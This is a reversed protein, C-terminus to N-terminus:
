LGKVDIAYSVDSQRIQSAYTDRAVIDAENAENADNLSHTSAAFM